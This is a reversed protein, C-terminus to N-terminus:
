WALPIRNLSGCRSVLNSIRRASWFGDIRRTEPPRRKRRPNSSHTEMTKSATAFRTKQRRADSATIDEALVLADGDRCMRSHFVLPGDKEVHLKPSGVVLDISWTDVKGTANKHTRKFHWTKGDYLIVAEGSVPPHAAEAKSRQMNLIWAGSFPPKKGNRASALSSSLLLGLGLWGVTKVSFM